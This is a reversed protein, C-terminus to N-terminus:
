LEVAFKGRLWPGYRMFLWPSPALLLTLGAFVSWGAGYGLKEFLSPAFLPVVGGVLSRFFAGAAIASAAYTSFADIYYNQVTNFILVQGLGWLFTSSISAM